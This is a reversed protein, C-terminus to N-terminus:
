PKGDSPEIKILNLQYLISLMDGLTPETRGAKWNYVINETFGEVKNYLARTKLTDTFLEKIESETM